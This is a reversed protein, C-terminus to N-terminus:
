TNQRENHLLDAEISKLLKEFLPRYEPLTDVIMRGKSYAEAIRRDDPIEALIQIGETDCYNFVERTGLDARNVVVAFTLNMVRTVEIALKLDNLGFPTADTVLIVADSDRLTEVVPCSTGPPADIIVIESDGGEEKVMKIVPPSMVEGINLLGQAFRIQGSYGVDLRGAKRFVEQIAGEPCVRVCGGCSHCLEPTVLVEDALCLIANFACIKSCKGCATCKDPDVQPILHGVDRSDTIHPNLFIHGNPEEVDCDLYAVRRGMSAATWAINASVTTKGTGGKGSAIAIKM